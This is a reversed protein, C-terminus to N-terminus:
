PSLRSRGACSATRSCGGGEAPVLVGRYRGWHDLGAATLVAFYASTRIREATVEHLDLCSGFCGGSNSRWAARRV